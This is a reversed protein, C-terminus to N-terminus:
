IIILILVHQRRILIRIFRDSLLWDALFFRILCIAFGQDRFLINPNQFREHLVYLRRNKGLRYQVQCVILTGQKDVALLRPIFLHLDVIVEPDLNISKNLEQRDINGHLILLQHFYAFTREVKLTVVLDKEHKLQVEM